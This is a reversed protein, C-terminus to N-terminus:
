DSAARKGTARNIAEIRDLPAPHSHHLAVFLPHPTLISLNHAWLRKLATAMSPADQTTRAAFRDAEYEHRRSILLMVVGLFLEVPAYLMGFFILGGHISVRDMGFADFLGRHTLFVSLLYFVIGAHVIGIVMGQLIHKKKFHGIEHALVAVLEKTSLQEILTDFLAVRRTRGFGTFFANSKTSRKSGDMVFVNSLPFNVKGAYALIARRLPGDELPTFRNFLPLIWTPAIFQIVLTFLTTAAWGYLWAGSGAYEFVALVVALLPGGILLLLVTARLLDAAYTIPTTRNFSHRQEIVFTSYAGFPVSLLARAAVFIGIYALGELISSLGWGSVWRDLHNFGGAFWFCLIVVDSCLSRFRGFTTTARNYRRAKEREAQDHIGKLAPPLPRGMARLNLLDAALNLVASGLIAALILIGYANLVSLINDRYSTSLPAAVLRVPPPRECLCPPV